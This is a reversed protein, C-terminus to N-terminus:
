FLTEHNTLSMTAIAEWFGEFITLSLSGRQRGWLGPFELAGVAEELAPAEDLAM